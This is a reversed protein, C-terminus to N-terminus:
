KVGEAVELEQLSHLEEPVEQVHLQDQTKEPQSNSRPKKVRYKESSNTTLGHELFSHHGQQHQVQGTSDRIIM